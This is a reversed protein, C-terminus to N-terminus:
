VFSSMEERCYYDFYAQHPICIFLEKCALVYTIRAGIINGDYMVLALIHKHCYMISAASMKDIPVDAYM